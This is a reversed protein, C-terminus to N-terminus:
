VSEVCALNSRSLLKRKSGKWRVEDECKNIKKKKKKNSSRGSSSFNMELERRRGARPM